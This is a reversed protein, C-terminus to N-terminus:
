SIGLDRSHLIWTFDIGLDCSEFKVLNWSGQVGFGSYESIKSDSIEVTYHESIKPDSPTLSVCNICFYLLVFWLEKPKPIEYELYRPILSKLIYPDWVWVGHFRPISSVMPKTVFQEWFRSIKFNWFKPIRTNRLSVSYLNWFWLYWFVPIKFELSTPTRRDRFPNWISISTDLKLFKPIWPHRLGPIKSGWVVSIESNLIVYNLSSM